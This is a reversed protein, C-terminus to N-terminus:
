ENGQLWTQFSKKPIRFIRGVKVVHFEGSKVLNYAATKSIGLYTRIDDVELIDPLDEIKSEM